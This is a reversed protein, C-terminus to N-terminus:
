PQNEALVLSYCPRAHALVVTTSLSGRRSDSRDEHNQHSSVADSFSATKKLMNFRWYSNRPFKLFWKGESCLRSFTLKKVLKHLLKHLHSLFDWTINSIDPTWGQEECLNALDTLLPWLGIKQNWQKYFSFACFFHLTLFHMKSSETFSIACIRKKEFSQCFMQVSVAHSAPWEM